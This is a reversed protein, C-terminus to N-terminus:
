LSLALVGALVVAAAAARRHGLPEGLFVAGILAGFVISSERLAAIPALAGSTQAWLVISYAALSIAGGALGPLAHRRLLAPLRRRRRLVALVPLVPGQLLFMWGIYALLPGEAVGIGDIVTYLAILLGTAVAAAVAPLERRGPRGGVLVLGILGASVALVGALDQAPLPRDLLVVSALAVILPATGRALPYVQSFEGLQYSALLLLSYGVHVAASAVIYPWADASPPGAVAALAGGGVLDVIGIMAFGILRDGIGHAISNWAAHLLAAVLVAAIMFPGLSPATVPPSSLIM